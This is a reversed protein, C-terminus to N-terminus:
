DAGGRGGPPAGRAPPDAVAPVRTERMRTAAFRAPISPVLLVLALAPLVLALAALERLGVPEGLILGSSFVGVVPIGLTGIAAIASPLMRVVRFWAYHCLLVGVVAAYATGVVAELGLGALSPVPELVLMGLMVPVAGLIVQWGTLLITPITWQFHKVLVTGTGWSAAACLMLLAGVPAKWLARFEPGILITLGALGLLLALGRARTLPERLVARGLIVAWLPMTYAIIAARGAGTLTLSYASLVHWGTINFLAVVCIPWRERRPIKLPLGGARAIGLLGFGGTLLCVTRFTWPTVQSLGVKMAPWNLGWLLTLGGLLVIGTPPLSDRLHAGMGQSARADQAPPSPERGRLRRMAGGAQRWTTASRM